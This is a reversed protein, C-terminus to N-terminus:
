ASAPTRNRALHMCGCMIPFGSLLGIEACVVGAANQAYIGPRDAVNSLISAGADDVQICHHGVRRFTVPKLSHTHGLTTLQGVCIASLVASNLSNTLILTSYLFQVQRQVLWVCRDRIGGAYFM